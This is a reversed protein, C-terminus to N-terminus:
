PHRPKNRKVENRRVAFDRGLVKDRQRRAQEDVTQELYLLERKLKLYSAMRDPDIRGAAVADQVACGPEHQHSCDPFRCGSAFEDIDTFTRDLADEDVWLGLERLGPTDIILVGDPLRVLERSTTTHRGKGGRDTAATALLEHGVLTNILTSKGVGSSGLLAVTSGARLFPALGDRGGPEVATTPVIPVGPAVAAAAAVLGALDVALDAKSLVIVPQAGSSWATTVYREIRRVEFDADAGTVLFVIDVNAAVVQAQVRDGAARRTFASRRPLVAEILAQDGESGRVAVWDGVAPFGDGEAVDRRFRGSVVADQEAQGAGVVVWRGRVHKVVRAPNLGLERYRSFEREWEATWGFETVDM